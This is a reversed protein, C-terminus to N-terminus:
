YLNLIPIDKSVTLASIAAKAKMKMRTKAVMKAKMNTKAKTKM